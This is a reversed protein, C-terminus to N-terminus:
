RGGYSRPPSGLRAVSGDPRRRREARLGARAQRVVQQSEDPEPWRRRRERHAPAEVAVPPLVRRRARVCREVADRAVVSGAGVSGWTDTVRWERHSALELGRSIFRRSKKRTTVALPAVAATVPQWRVAPFIRGRTGGGSCSTGPTAAHNAVTHRSHGAPQPTIAFFRSPRTTFSAPFGSGWTPWPA